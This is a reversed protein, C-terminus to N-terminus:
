NRRNWNLKSTKLILIIECNERGLIPLKRNKPRTRIRHVRVGVRNCGKFVQQHMRRINLKPKRWRGIWYSFVGQSSRRINSIPVYFNNEADNEQQLTHAFNYALGRCNLVRCPLICPLIPLIVFSMWTVTCSGAVWLKMPNALFSFLWKVM